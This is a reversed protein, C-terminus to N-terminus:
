KLTTVAGNEIKAGEQDGPRNLPGIVGHALKGAEELVADVLDPSVEAYGPLASLEDMGAIETLAFRM